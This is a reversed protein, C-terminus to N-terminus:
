KTWPEERSLPRVRRHEIFDVREVEAHPVDRVTLWVNLGDDEMNCAPIYLDLRHIKAEIKQDESWSASMTQTKKTGDIIKLEITGTVDSSVHIVARTSLMSAIARADDLCAQDGSTAGIVWPIITWRHGRLQFLFRSHFSARGEIPRAAVDREWRAGTRSGLHEAVSALPAEVALVTWQPSGRMLMKQLEATGRLSAVDRGKGGRGRLTPRPERGSRKEIAAVLARRIRGGYPGSVLSLATRGYEDRAEPDAGHALLLEVIKPDGWEAAEMLATERRLCAANVDAGAAILAQVADLSGIGCAGFLATNADDRVDPISGHDLLARVLDAYGNNAAFVLPPQRAGRPHLDANSLHGSRVIEIARRLLPPRQEPPLGPDWESRPRKGRPPPEATDISTGRLSGPAELYAAIAAHGAKAARPAIRNSKDGRVLETRPDVGAEEVLVRACGLHGHLAAALLPLAGLRGTVDAGARLLMRLAGIRGAGAAAKLPSDIGFPGMETGANPNAGRALLLEILELNGSEAAKCLPAGNGEDVDAGDEIFRRVSETDGDHVAVTLSSPLKNAREERPGELKKLLKRLEDGPTM